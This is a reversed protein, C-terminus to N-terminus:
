KTLIIYVCFWRLYTILHVCSENRPHCEDPIGKTLCIVIQNVDNTVIHL